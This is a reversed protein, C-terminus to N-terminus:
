LPQVILPLGHKPRLSLMITPSHHYSPSVKFKFKSLLLTLVIKYEMFTLNRGVCSRGGFGFPLYGMKHNSEGNADNMFREPKFKNADNGWITVDHHMAVVDIWINTGRPVKLNDLQIDEMTQRQVNPSPPYLRLAENMVCKMKKLDALLNIDLKEINGIVQKIEDRLQNQWDQHLALLLLTWTISLSTTEYGGFFFTKCEDVLEKKTLAKNLKGDIEHNEKLLHGLLDQEHQKKDNSNMRDNIISLMLKDVNKGINKAEFTKKFNFFKEFPVGVYGNTKFLTMQLTRLQEFVLKGKEDGMGFSAKAIIDGATAVIEREIDIELHGSNIQSNWRKIMKKTADVMMSAMTKLNLPTFTPAIVHRHHVWTTGEAMVLGNGFMPERDKRFVSPKGWKKALVKSSMIKLFEPDAIYLFPETGLWYIFVKGYSKQWSYYYPSIISHINHTIDLSSSFSSNRKMEKINGFPFSPTPGDFGCKKLNVLKHKPLIWWFYTLTTLLCLCIVLIISTFVYLVQSSLAVFEM